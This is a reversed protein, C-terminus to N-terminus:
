CKQRRMLEAGAATRSSGADTGFMAPQVGTLVAMEDAMKNLYAFIDKPVPSPGKGEHWIPEPPPHLVNKGLLYVRDLPAAKSTIIKQVINAAKAAKVDDQNNPDHASWKFLTDGDSAIFYHEHMVVFPNAFGYDIGLIYHLESPFSYTRFPWVRRTAEGALALAALKFFSRRDM